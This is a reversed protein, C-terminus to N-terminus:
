EKDMEQAQETKYYGKQYNGKILCTIRQVSSFYPTLFISSYYPM